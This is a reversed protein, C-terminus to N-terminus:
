GNETALCRRIEALLSGSEIPKRVFGLCGHDEAWQRTLITATVVIIPIPPAGEVHIEELFHWGDLVPMLMDLLVLDPHLGSRLHVLAEEGNAASIVNYGERRLVAGVAERTVTDDEVVLLSKMEAM